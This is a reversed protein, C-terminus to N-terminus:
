WFKWWAKGSHRKARKFIYRSMDNATPSGPSFGYGVLEWGDTGLGNLTPEHGRGFLETSKYEWQTRSGTATAILMFAVVVMTTLVGIIFSKPDFTTFM